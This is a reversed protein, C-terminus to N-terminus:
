VGRGWRGSAGAAGLQSNTQFRQSAADRADTLRGKCQGWRSCTEGGAM